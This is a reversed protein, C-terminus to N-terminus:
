KVLVKEVFDTGSNNISVIYLGPRLGTDLLAKPRDILTMEKM